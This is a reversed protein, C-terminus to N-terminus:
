ETADLVGVKKDSNSYFAIILLATSFFPLVPIKYRVLTGFNFTSVGVAFAFVISFILCFVVDPNSLLLLLTTGKKLIIYFVLLLMVLSELASLLMLPNNVEWLYPRFLAVNVAFPALRLMGLFSGDLEGLTYGSGANKGTLDHIDVATVRATEALKDIAYKQDGEGVKVATYYGVYVSMAIVFPFIMIRLVMSPIIKMQQQYIWLIAAPLYAQLVFKKVVFVFYLSLLLIVVHVLSIKRRIFLRDIEYTAIGISSLVITDKLLGSGWFFVSPIFLIAIALWFYLEPYRRYFTYYMMWAGVFGFVGFLVATASYSSFTFIDFLAAMRIVFFASPNGFFEIRSSYKYFSGQHVGGSFMMQLGKEPSDMFAEWIFRSGGTHYNFTDGGGYYFQYIFGLALAGLIRVTLAPLFYPRTLEDTVFPRVMMAGIYVLSIIIPTVIFDRLEM